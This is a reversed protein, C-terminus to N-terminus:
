GGEIAWMLTVRDGNVISAENWRTQPILKDNRMCVLGTTDSIDLQAILQAPSLPTDIDLRIRDNGGFPKPRIEGFGFLRIEIAM